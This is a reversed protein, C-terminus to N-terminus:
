RATLRGFGFGLGILAGLGLAMLGRTEWPHTRTWTYLGLVGAVRWLGIGVPGPPGPQPQGSAAAQQRSRVELARLEQIQGVVRPLAPDEVIALITPMYKSGTQLVKALSTLTTTTQADFFPEAALM